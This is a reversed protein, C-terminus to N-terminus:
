FTAFDHQMLALIIEGVLTRYAVTRLGIVFSGTL